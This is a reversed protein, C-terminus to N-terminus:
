RNWGSAGIRAAAASGSAWKTAGQRSGGLPRRRVPEVVSGVVELRQGQGLGEVGLLLAERTVRAARVVAEVGICAAAQVGLLDPPPM